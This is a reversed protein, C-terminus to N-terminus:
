APQSSHAPWILGKQVSVLGRLAVGNGSFATYLSPTWESTPFSFATITHRGAESMLAQRWAVAMRKEEIVHQPDMLRLLVV